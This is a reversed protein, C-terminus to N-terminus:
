LCLVSSYLIQISSVFSCNYKSCYLSNFLVNSFYFFISYSSSPFRRRGSSSASSSSCGVATRFCAELLSRLCSSRQANALPLCASFTCSRRCSSIALYPRGQPSTRDVAAGNVPKGMLSVSGKLSSAHVGASNAVGYCDAVGLSLASLLLSKVVVPLRNM